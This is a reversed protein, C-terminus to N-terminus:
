RGLGTARFTFLDVDFDKAATTDTIVQIFPTLSGTPVNTSSTQETGITAGSENYLQFRITGGVTSWMKLRRWSTSGAQSSDVVTSTSSARTEFKFNADAFGASTDFRVGMWNAPEPAGPAARVGARFRVNATSNLKFVWNVEWNANAQLAGLPTASSNDLAIEVGHGSTASTFAVRHVGLNPWTSALPTSTQGTAGNHVRLMWGLDAISGNATAQGFFEDKMSVIVPHTDLVDTGTYGDLLDANLNTCVTGNSIPINGSSNGTTLDDLLDANLNPVKTTSAISFPSTGTALNSTLQGSLTLTTASMSTFTGQNPTGSGVHAPAAWDAGDLKDANLNTCVTTSQVSIPSTGTPILSTLFTTNGLKVEGSGDGKGAIVLANTGDGYLDPLGANGGSRKLDLAAATARTYASNDGKKIELVEAAKNLMPSNVDAPGIHFRSNDADLIFYTTGGDRDSAIELKRNGANRLWTQEGGVRLWSFAARGTTNNYLAESQVFGRVQTNGRLYTQLTTGVGMTNLITPVRAFELRSIGNTPDDANGLILFNYADNDGSDSQLAWEGVGQRRFVITTRHGVGTNINDLVLGPNYYAEVLFENEPVSPDTQSHIFHRYSLPSAANKYQLFVHDNQGLSAKTPITTSANGFYRHKDDGGTGPNISITRVLWDSDGSSQETADTVEVEPEILTTVTAGTITLDYKGDAAYFFFYGRSDTTVQSSGIPTIGDDSYITALAGTGPTANAVRVTVTASAVPVGVQNVVRDQYRRM